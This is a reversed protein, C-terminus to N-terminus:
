PSSSTGCSPMPVTMVRPLKSPTWRPWWVTGRATAASASSCERRDTAIVKSGCGRVTWWGSVGVCIIVLTRWFDRSMASVPM